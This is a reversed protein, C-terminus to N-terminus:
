SKNKSEVFLAVFNANNNFKRQKANQDHTFILKM